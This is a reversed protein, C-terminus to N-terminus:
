GGVSPHWSSHWHMERCCQCSPERGQCKWVCVCAPWGIGTDPHCSCISNQFAQLVIHHAESPTTQWPDTLVHTPAGLHGSTGVNPWQSMQIGWMSPLQMFHNGLFMFVWLTVGMLSQLHQYHQRVCRYPMRQPQYSSTGAQFSFWKFIWRQDVHVPSWEFQVKGDPNLKIQWLTYKWCKGHSVSAIRFPWAPPLITNRM